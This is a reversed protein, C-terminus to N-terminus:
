VEFIDFCFSERLLEVIFVSFERNYLDDIRVDITQINREADIIDKV